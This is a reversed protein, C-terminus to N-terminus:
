QAGTNQLNGRYRPWGGALNYSKVDVLTTKNSRSVVLKNNVDDLLLAKPEGSITTINWEPIGLSDAFQYIKGNKAAFVKDQSLLLVKVDDVSATADVTKYV